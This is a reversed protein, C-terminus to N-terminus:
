LDPVPAFTSVTVLNSPVIVASPHSFIQSSLSSHWYQNRRVACCPSCVPNLQLSLVVRNVLSHSAVLLLYVAWPSQTGVVVVVAAVVVVVVLVAHALHQM